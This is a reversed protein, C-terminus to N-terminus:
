GAAMSIAALAAMGADRNSMLNQFRSRAIQGSPMNCSATWGGITNRNHQTNESDIGNTGGMFYGDYEILQWCGPQRM